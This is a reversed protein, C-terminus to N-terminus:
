KTQKRINGKIKGLAWKSNFNQKLYTWVGM